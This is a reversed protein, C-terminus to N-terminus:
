EREGAGMDGYDMKVQEGDLKTQRLEQIIWAQPVDTVYRVYVRGVADAVMGRILLRREASLRRYAMRAAESLTGPPWVDVCEVDLPAPLWKEDRM